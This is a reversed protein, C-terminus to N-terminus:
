QRHGARDSLDRTLALKLTRCREAESLHGTKEFHCIANRLADVAGDFNGNERRAIALNVYASALWASMVSSSEKDPMADVAAHLANEAASFRKMRLMIAGVYATREAELPDGPSISAPMLVALALSLNNMAALCRAQGLLALHLEEPTSSISQVDRYIRLAELYDGKQEVFAARGLSPPAFLPRTKSTEVMTRCSSLLCSLILGFLLLTLRSIKFSGRRSLLRPPRHPWQFSKLQNWRRKM